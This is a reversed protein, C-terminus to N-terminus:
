PSHPPEGPDCSRRFVNQPRAWELVDCVLLAACVAFPPSRERFQSRTGTAHELALIGLWAAVPNLSSVTKAVARVWHRKAVLRQVQQFEAEM